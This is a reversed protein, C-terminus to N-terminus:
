WNMRDARIETIRHAAADHIGFHIRPGHFSKLSNIANDMERTGERGNSISDLVRDKLLDVARTPDTWAYHTVRIHRSCALTIQRLADDLSLKPRDTM